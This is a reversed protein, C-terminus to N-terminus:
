GEVTESATSIESIVIETSAQELLRYGEPLVIDVPIRYTGTELGDVNISAIIDGAMEDDFADIDNGNEPIVRLELKDIEFAVQLGDKKGDVSIQTTPISIRKGEEPLIHVNVIIESSSGTTLKLGEPLYQSIDLKFEADSREDSIDLSEDSITLRNGNAKLTELATETGAVSLTEPVTTVSEVLYGEEPFGAYKINLGVDSRTKWLKTSVNVRGENEFRLNNMQSTTFMAGNKDIVYVQGTQLFDETRGDVSINVNVKDIIRMLSQPGTIRVKEPNVTQTGIDYGAGPRTDGSNVGVMFESTVKEELKVAINRPYVSINEPSIGSCSAFVPIMVPDTDLSVAQQLDAVLSIDASTIGNLKKREATITVRVPTNEAEQLCVLGTEDIYAENVLGVDTVTFSKSITPNNINGVVLWLVIGVLLSILKLALNDTLKKKM